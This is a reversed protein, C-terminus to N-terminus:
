ATRRRGPPPMAPKVGPTVSSVPSRGRFRASRFPGPATTSMEASIPSRVGFTAGREGEPASAPAPTLADPLFKGVSFVM